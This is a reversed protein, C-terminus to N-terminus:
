RRSNLSSRAESGSGDARGRGGSCRGAGSGTDASNAEVADAGTADLTVGAPAPVATKRASSISLTREDSSEAGENAMAGTDSGGAEPPEVAPERATSGAGATSLGLPAATAILGGCAGGAVAGAAGTNGAGEASASGAAASGGFLVM